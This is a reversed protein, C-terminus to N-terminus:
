TSIEPDFITDESGTSLLLPSVEPYTLYPLFIQIVFIFPFYDDDEFNAFVDIEGGGPDFCEDENLEDINNIVASILEGSNSEFDFFIEVDPPKPPPRPFSLDDHHDFNSSKNKPLPISDNSLLEELFHNDGKDEVPIPSTPLTEIITNAHFNGLLRPFSNITLLKEMLSIYEEHERKIREENIISTPMLERSFEELYDFKPSSDFLNDQNPLSEILNSEVNFYYPDIKNSIIEEDYFLPNYHIKFNEMPVDEHSFSKDDNSTFDDNCDFLPNSFNTFIPSSEDKVPVDCESENNHLTLRNWSPSNIYEELEESIIQLDELLKQLLENTDESQAHQIEFFKEPYQSLQIQDFGSSDQNILQCQFTAHPGGCIECCLFSPLNHPYYNDDYNQNYSPEQEYVLPFQPPFDYGYHSDNGCLKCLYTENHSQPPQTFNNSTNNFSYPNPDYTFSNEAKSNSFLCFGGRLPRKPAKQGTHAQICTEEIIQKLMQGIEPPLLSIGIPDIVEPKAQEQEKEDDEVDNDDEVDADDKTDEVDLDVDDDCDDEVVKVDGFNM